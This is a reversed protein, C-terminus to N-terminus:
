PSQDRPEGVEADTKLHNTVSLAPAQMALACALTRDLNSRVLGTLTARGGEVIIRIPPSPMVAYHWFAANGYVARAIQARLEDDFTSAPLVTIRNRVERVGDLRAVRTEIEDRKFPMTVKGTLTVIGDRVDANVDDFITLNSYNRLEVVVEGSIQPDRRESSAAAGVGAASILAGFLVLERCSM